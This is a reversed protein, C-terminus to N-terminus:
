LFFTPSDCAKNLQTSLAPCGVLIRPVTYPVRYSGDVWFGVLLSYEPDVLQANITAGGGGLDLSRSLGDNLRRLFELRLAADSVTAERVEGRVRVTRGWTAWDVRYAVDRGPIPREFQVREKTVEVSLPHPLSFTGYLVM